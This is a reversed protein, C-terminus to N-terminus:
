PSIEDSWTEVFVDTLFVSEMTDFDILATAAVSAAAEL